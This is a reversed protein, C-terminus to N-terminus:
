IKTCQSLKLENYTTNMTKYSMMLPNEDAERIGQRAKGVETQERILPALRTASPHTM